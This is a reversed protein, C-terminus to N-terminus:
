IYKLYFLIILLSSHTNFYIIKIFILTRVDYIEEKDTIDRHLFYELLFIYISLNLTVLALQM